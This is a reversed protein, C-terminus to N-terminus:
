HRTPEPADPDTLRLTALAAELLPPFPVAVNHRTWCLHQTMLALARARTELDLAATM